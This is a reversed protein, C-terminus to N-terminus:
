SPHLIFIIIVYNNLNEKVDVNSDTDSDDDSRYGVSKLVSKLDDRLQIAWRKRMELYDIQQRQEYLKKRNDYSSFM